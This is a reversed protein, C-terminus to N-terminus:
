LRSVEAAITGLEDPTLQPHIPLSLVEDALKEAVPLRIDGIVGGAVAPLTCACTTSAQASEPRPWNQLSADRSRNATSACRTSTGSTNTAPRVTPTHVSEIKANLYAANARTTRCFRRHPGTSGLGARGTNGDHSLEFGTDRSSLPTDHRAFAASSVTRCPSRRQDHDHRRRGDHPKQHRLLQVSRASVAPM